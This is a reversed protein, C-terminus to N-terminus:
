KEEFFSIALAALVLVVSVLNLVMGIKRSKSSAEQKACMNFNYASGILIIVMLVYFSVRM